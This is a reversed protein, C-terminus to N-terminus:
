KGKAAAIVEPRGPDCDTLYGVIRAPGSSSVGPARSLRMTGKLTVILDSGPPGYNRLADFLVAEKFSNSSVWIALQETPAGCDRRHCDGAVLLGGGTQTLWRGRAVVPRGALEQAQRAVECVSM